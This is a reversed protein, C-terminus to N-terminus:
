RPGVRADLGRGDLGWKGWRALAEALQQPRQRRYSWAVVPLLLVDPRGPPVEDPDFAYVPVDVAPKRIGLLKEPALRRRMARRWSLPVIRRGLVYLRGRLGKEWEPKM